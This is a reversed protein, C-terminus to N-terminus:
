STWNPPNYILIKSSIELVGVRAKRLKNIERELILHTVVGKHNKDRYEQRFTRNHYEALTITDELVVGLAVSLHQLGVFISDVDIKDRLIDMFSDIEKISDSIHNITKEKIIDLDVDSRIFDPKYELWKRKLFRSVPNHAQALLEPSEKIKKSITGSIAGFTSEKINLISSVVFLLTEYAEIIGSIDSNEEDTLVIGNKIKVLYKSIDSSRNVTGKLYLLKEKNDGSSKKTLYNVVSQLHLIDKLINSLKVFNDNETLSEEVPNKVSINELTSPKLEPVSDTNEEEIKEPQDAITRKSIKSLTEFGQVINKYSGIGISSILHMAQPVSNVDSSSLYNEVDLLKEKLSKASRIMDKRPGTRFMDFFSAEVIIGDDASMITDTHPKKRIKSYNEQEQIIKEAGDILSTYETAIQNLYSGVQSPLPERINSPPLGVRPDGRGNLGRKFAILKAILDTTSKNWIQKVERLHEQAPDSSRKRAITVKGDM